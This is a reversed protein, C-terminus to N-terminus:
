LHILPLFKLVFQIVKDSLHSFARRHLNLDLAETFILQHEVVFTVVLM